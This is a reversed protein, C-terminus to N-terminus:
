RCAPMKGQDSPYVLVIQRNHLDAPFRGDAYGRYDPGTTSMPPGKVSDVPPVQPFRRVRGFTSSVKQAPLM